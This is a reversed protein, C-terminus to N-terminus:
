KTNSFKSKEQKMTSVIKGFILVLEHSEKIIGDLEPREKVSDALLRLWYYSEQAEKKCIHIKNRFDIRSVAGTAEQYNAGVSTASRLLQGIIIKNATNVAIERSLRIISRSFEFTRDELPYKM